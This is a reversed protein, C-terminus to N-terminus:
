RHLAEKIEAQEAPSLQVSGGAGASSRAAQAAERLETHEAPSLSPGAAAGSSSSSTAAAGKNKYVKLPNILKLLTQDIPVKTGPKVQAPGGALSLLDTLLNATGYPKGGGQIVQQAQTAGITPGSAAESLANTLKQIPTLEAGNAQKVKEHTLANTGSLASALGEFQPGIQEVATTPADAGGVGLPSYHGLDLLTNGLVPLNLPITGQLYDPHEKTGVGPAGEGQGMASREPRTAQYIAAAIGTKLPHTVPLRYLWRMSNLWWLGFPTLTSVALKVKPTLNNWNGAADDLKRALMHVKNPAIAIGRVLERQTEDQMRLFEAASAPFGNKRLVSGFVAVRSNHAFGELGRETLNRWKLWARMPPSHAALQGKRALESTEDWGGTRRVIDQMKQSGVLGRGSLESQVRRFRAAEPGVDFLTGHKDSQALDNIHSLVKRGFPFDLPHTVSGETVPRIVSEEVVGLAHKPSTAFKVHRFGQTYLQAWKKFGQKASAAEQHAQLRDIVKKPILGYKGTGDAVEAPTHHALGLRELEGSVDRPVPALNKELIQGTGKDIPVMGGLERVRDAGTLASEPHNFNEAALEAQPREYHGIAYDHVLANYGEHQAVRSAQHALQGVLADFSHDNTGKAYAAGTRLNGHLSPQRLTSRFFSSSGATGAQHSVFGVAPRGNEGAPVGNALMHAEIAEDPLHKGEATRLGAQQAPQARVAEKLEGERARAAAVAEKAGRVRADAAEMARSGGDAARTDQGPRPRGHAGVLRSRAHEVRSLHQVATQTDEVALRHAAITQEHAAQDEPAGRGNVEWRHARAAQLEEIARAHEPTGPSTAVAHERAAHEAVSAERELAAHDEVTFHRAGMQSIAYPGLKARVQEPRLSGAAVEYATLPEQHKIATEAAAHAQQLEEPSAGRVAKMQDIAAQNAKLESKRLTPRVAELAAQRDAADAVATEPNRLTRDFFPHTAEHLKPKLGMAKPVVTNKVLTRRAGESSAAGYDVRGPKVGTGVLNRRLRWGEAQFPDRQRLGGPLKTLAREYAVQAGKRLPDANYRQDKAIDKYLQLSPRVQSASPVLGPRVVREAGTVPDLAVKEGLRGVAGGLRGLVNEGGAFMLATSLPQQEFSRVPHEVQSLIGQGLAEAQGPNGEIASRGAKGALAGSLFTQGPLDIAENLVKGPIGGLAEGVGLKQGLQAAGIALKSLDIGAVPLRWDGREQQKQQEIALQRLEQLGAAGFRQEAQPGSPLRLRPGATLHTTAASTLINQQEGPTQGNLRARLLPSAKVLQHEYAPVAHAAGAAAHQAASAAGRLLGGLTTSPHPALGASPVPRTPPPALHPAVRPAPAPRLIVGPARGQVPM